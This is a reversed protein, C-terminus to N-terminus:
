FKHIAFAYLPCLLIIMSVIEIGQEVVIIENGLLALARFILSDNRLPCSTSCAPLPKRGLKRQHFNNRDFSFCILCFKLLFHVLPSSSNGLWTVACVSRLSSSSATKKWLSIRRLTHGCSLPFSGASLCLCLWLPFARPFFSLPQPSSWPVCDTDTRIESPLGSVRPLFHNSRPVQFKAWSVMDLPSSSSTFSHELCCAFFGKSCGRQHIDIIDEARCKLKKAIHNANEDTHLPLGLM